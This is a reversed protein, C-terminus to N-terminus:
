FPQNYKIPPTGYGALRADGVTLRAGHQGAEDDGFLEDLQHDTMASLAYYIRFIEEFAVGRSFLEYVLRETPVQPPRIDQILKSM